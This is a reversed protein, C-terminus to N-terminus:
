QYTTSVTDFPAGMVAIDYTGDTADDSYCEAYPMNAFTKLGRFRSGTVIDVNEDRGSSAFMSAQGAAALLPHQPLEHALTASPSAALWALTYLARRRHM